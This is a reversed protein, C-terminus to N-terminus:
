LLVVYQMSARAVFEARLVNLNQDLQINKDKIELSINFFFAIKRWGTKKIFPKGQLITYDSKELISMATDQYHKFLTASVMGPANEKSAMADRCALEQIPHKKLAPPPPSSSQQIQLPKVFCAYNSNSNNHQQRWSDNNNNYNSNNNGNDHRAFKHLPALPRTWPRQVVEGNPSFSSDEEVHYDAQFRKQNKQARQPYPSVDTSPSCANKSITKQGGPPPFFPPKNRSQQKQVSHSASASDIVAWLEADDLDNDDGCFQVLAM